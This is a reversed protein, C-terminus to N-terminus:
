RCAITFFSARVAGSEGSVIISQNKSNRSLAKFADEAVAFVHPDLEGADGGRYQEIVEPEFIPLRTYPNLVVLVIGCYTYIENGECFRVELNHLVAPEHLYSLHTLDASGILIEPNRLPPLDSSNSVDITKQVPPFFHPSRLSVPFLFLGLLM